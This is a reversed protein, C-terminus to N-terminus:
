VTEQTGHEGDDGTTNAGSGRAYAIAAFESTSRLLHPLNADRILSIFTISRITRAACSRIVCMLRHTRVGRCARSNIPAGTGDRM